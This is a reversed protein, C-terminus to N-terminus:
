NIRYFVTSYLNNCGCIAQVPKVSGGTQQCCWPVLSRPSAWGGARRGLARRELVFAKYTWADLPVFYVSSMKPLLQWELFYKIAFSIKCSYIPVGCSFVWSENMVKWLSCLEVVCFFTGTFCDSFQRFKQYIIPLPWLLWLSFPFVASRKRM